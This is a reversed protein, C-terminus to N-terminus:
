AAGAVAEKAGDQHTLKESEDWLRRALATDLALAAPPRPKYADFYLGSKGEVEPSAALYALRRGGESAPTLFPRVLKGVLTTWAPGLSWIKTAVAGPHLANVTVGKGALRRALELTFLVNGLKARGYARVTSYGQAFGLDAFDMTGEKHESSAVNVIRAPASKVILDLLLNTLLFYALHDVAFTAEIGDATLTRKSFATGADNVLVDLRAHAARFDAALGRIQAQSAFDCLLSSVKQSGARQKVEDVKAQTKAPDRGVMVLTAGLKALEVSAELGIGSTAGTVLVTKGTLDNM